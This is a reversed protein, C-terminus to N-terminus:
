YAGVRAALAAAPRVRDVALEAQAADAQALHCVAALQRAHGLARPSRGGRGEGAGGWRKGACWRCRLDCRCSWGLGAHFWPSLPRLLGIVMVSGIASMSVRTRFALAACWSVAAMGNELSFDLM